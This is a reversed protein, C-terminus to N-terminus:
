LRYGDKIMMPAARAFAESPPVEFDFSDALRDIINFALSVKVADAAAEQSVGAARLAKGDTAGLADPSVTMKRLFRLMERLRPTIEATDVDNLIQGVM